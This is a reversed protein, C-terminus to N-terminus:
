LRRSRFLQLASRRKTYPSNAFFLSGIIAFKGQSFQGLPHNVGELLLGLPGDPLQSYLPLPEPFSLDSSWASALVSPAITQPENVTAQIDVTSDWTGETVESQYSPLLEKIRSHIELMERYTNLMRESHRDLCELYSQLTPKMSHRDPAQGLQSSTTSPFTTQM